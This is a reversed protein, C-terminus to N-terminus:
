GRRKGKAPKAPKLEDTIWGGREYYDRGRAIYDDALDIELQCPKDAWWYVNDVSRLDGDGVDIMLGVSPVFPITGRRHWNLGDFGQPNPVGEPWPTELNFQVIFIDGM